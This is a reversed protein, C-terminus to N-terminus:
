MWLMAVTVTIAVLQPQNKKQVFKVNPKTYQLTLIPGFYPTIPITPTFM